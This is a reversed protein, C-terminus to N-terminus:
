ALKKGTIIVALWPFLEILAHQYNRARQHVTRETDRVWDTILTCSMGITSFDQLPITEPARSNVINLRRLLNKIMHHTTM